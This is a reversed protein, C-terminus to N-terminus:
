KTQKKTYPTQSHLKTKYHYFDTMLTGLKAMLDRGKQTTDVRLAEILSRSTKCIEDAKEALRHERRALILQTRNLHLKAILYRAAVNKGRILMLNNDTDFLSCYNVRSPNPYCINSHNIRPDAPWDDGKFSNCIPCAYFLNSYDNELHAFRPDAKPKYHEVHFNRIGGLASDHVACYVCQNYGEEALFEKWHKYTTGHNPKKAPDKVIQRWKM